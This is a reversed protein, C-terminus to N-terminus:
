LKAVAIKSEVIAFRMSVCHRPGLGFPLYSGPIINERNGRLFRSPDFKHPEHWYDPDNQTAYISIAAVDGKRIMLNYKEVYHDQARVRDVYLVPSLLRLTECVVADLFPLQMISECNLDCRRRGRADVSVSAVTQLEDYLKRQTDQHFALTYAVFALFSSSTSAGIIILFIANSMIEM